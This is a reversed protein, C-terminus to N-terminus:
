GDVIVNTATAWIEEYAGIKMKATEIDSRQLTAPSRRAFDKFSQTLIWADATDIILLRDHLSRPATARLALPRAGGYQEVWRKAMPNLSARMSSSDTLLRVSVGEPVLVAFETLASEDMYPDVILVDVKAAALVKSFAAIADFGSGVSVFAGQASAPLRIELKALARNILSIITRANEEPRMTRILQDIAHDLQISMIAMPFAAQVVASARGLWQVTQAPLNYKNDFGTLDPTNVLLVALQQHLAEPSQANPM